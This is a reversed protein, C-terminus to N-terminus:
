TNVERKYGEMLYKQKKTIPHNRLTEIIIEEKGM